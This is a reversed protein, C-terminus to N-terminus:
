RKHAPTFKKMKAITERLDEERIKSLDICEEKTLNGVADLLNNIREKENELYNIAIAKAKEFTLNTYDYHVLEIAKQPVIWVESPSISVKFKM